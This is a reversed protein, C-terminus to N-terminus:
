TSLVSERDIHGPAIGSNWVSTGKNKFTGSNEHLLTPYTSRLFSGQWFSARNTWENRYFESKHCVSLCVSASLCVISLLSAMALVRALM